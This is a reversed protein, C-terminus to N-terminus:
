TRPLVRATGSARANMRLRSCCPARTSFPGVDEREFQALAHLRRHQSVSPMSVGREIVKLSGRRQAVEVGCIVQGASSLGSWPPLPARM